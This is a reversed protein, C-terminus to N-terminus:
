ARQPEDQWPSGRKLVALARLLLRRMVACIAQQHAKGKARLRAYLDRAWPQGRVACLAAMYLGGKLRRNGQGLRSPGSRAGSSDDLPALAAYSCVQAGTRERFDEPLECLLARATAPGVAPVSLLLRYDEKLGSSRVRREFEREASRAREGLCRAAEELLSRALEDLCPRELSKRLDACAGKVREIARSLDTLAQREASRAPRHPLLPGSGSLARADIPDTKAGGGLAQQLRRVKLPNLVRAEHGARELAERVPREYGGSSELCALSGAPLGELLRLIGEPTNPFRRPMGADVSVALERKSVDIGVRASVSKLM